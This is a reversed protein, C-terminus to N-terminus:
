RSCSLNHLSVKPTELCDLKEQDWQKKAVEELLVAKIGQKQKFFLLNERGCKRVFMFFAADIFIHYM